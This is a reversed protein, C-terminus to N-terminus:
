ARPRAPFARRRGRRREGPRGRDGRQPRRLRPPRPPPGPPAPRRSGLENRLRDLHALIEGRLPWGDPRDAPSAALLDALKGQQREAEELHDDLEEAIPSPHSEPTGSAPPGAEILQGYANVGASLEAIVAALRTRTEADKVPSDDSDLRTSDAVARALVRM